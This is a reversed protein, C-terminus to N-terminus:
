KQDYYHSIKLRYFVSLTDWFMNLVTTWKIHSTAKNFKVEIPAEYIKKFGMHNSLALM